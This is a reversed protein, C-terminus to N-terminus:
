APQAAHYWGLYDFFPHGDVVAGREIEERSWLYHTYEDEAVGSFAQLLGCVFSRVEEAGEHRGSVDASVSVAPEGGFYELLSLWDEVEAEADLDYYLGIYLVPDGKKEAIWRDPEPLFPYNETLFAAVTPESVAKLHVVVSRM